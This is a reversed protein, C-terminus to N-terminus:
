LVFEINDLFGNVPARDNGPNFNSSPSYPEYKEKIINPSTRRDIIPFLAYKTSVPRPDYNPQLHTDPKYRQCIRKNIEDGITEDTKFNINSGNIVNRNSIQNLKSM